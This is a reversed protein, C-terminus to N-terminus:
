SRSCGSKWVDTNDVQSRREILSLLHFQGVVISKGWNSQDFYAYTTPINQFYAEVVLFIHNATIINNKGISRRKLM